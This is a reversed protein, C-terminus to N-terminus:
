LRVSESKLGKAITILLEIRDESLTSAYRVLEALNPPLTGDIAQNDLLYSIPLDLANALISVTEINPRKNGSEIYSISSQALGCKKALQGQSYGMSERAHKIKESISMEDWNAM